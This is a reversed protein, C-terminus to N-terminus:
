LTQDAPLRTELVQELRVAARLLMADQGHAATLQLGLPLGRSVPIPISIAPAGLATWPANMRADGTWALGRPAPGTAAPVLVVPMEEHLGDLRTRCEVICRRAESYRDLSMRLGEQVLDALPGLGDGHRKFREEHVRAGEYAMVTMAADNLRTLLDTLDIPRLVLGAARLVAVARRFAAAMAPQVEPLPDAVAFDVTEGGSRPDGIPTPEISTWLALMDAATRTFFGLTDLSQALPLVGDMPFLGYSPKFGTIGCYSAPRLVSGLTQTGLAVPVMGAAVAAASGSSSGGPTHALNRPNRTPAPARYAFEATHTKGLLLGGLQRLHGVIAADVEGVRGRYISSGYETALGRTDIVDKVGFPIAALQGAGTSPQPLVQTWARVSGDLQRIRDLCRKLGIARAERPAM